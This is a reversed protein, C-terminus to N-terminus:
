CNRRLDTIGYIRIDTIGYIRAERRGYNRLEMAVAIGEGGDEYAKADDDRDESM